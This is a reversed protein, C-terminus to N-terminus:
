GPVFGRIRKYHKRIEQSREKIPMKMWDTKGPKYMTLNWRAKRGDDSRVMRIIRRGPTLCRAMRVGVDFDLKMCAFAIELWYKTVAHPEVGLEGLIQPYFIDPDVVFTNIKGEIKSCWEPLSM